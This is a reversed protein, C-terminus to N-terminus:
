TLKLLLQWRVLQVDNGVALKLVSGFLNGDWLSDESLPKRGWAVHSHIVAVVLLMERGTSGVMASGSSFWETGSVDCRQNIKFDAVVTPSM